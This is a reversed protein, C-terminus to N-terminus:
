EGREDRGDDDDVFELSDEDLQRLLGKALRMAMRPDVHVAIEKGDQGVLTLCLYETLNDIGYGASRVDVVELHGHCEEEDEITVTRSVRILEGM